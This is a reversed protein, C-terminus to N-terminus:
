DTVRISDSSRVDSSKVERVPHRVMCVKLTVM